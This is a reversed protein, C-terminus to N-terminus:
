AESGTRMLAPICYETGAQLTAMDVSLCLYEQRLPGSKTQFRSDRPSPPKDLDSFVMKVRSYEGPGYSTCGVIFIQLGCELTTVSESNIERMHQVIDKVWAQLEIYQPMVMSKVVLFVKFHLNNELHWSRRLAVM